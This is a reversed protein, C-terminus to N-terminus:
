TRKIVSDLEEEWLLGARRALHLLSALYSLLVGGLVFLAAPTDGLRTYVIGGLAYSLLTLLGSILLSHTPVARYPPHNNREAEYLRYQAVLYVGLALAWNYGPHSLYGHRALLPLVFMATAFSAGAVLFSALQAAKGPEYSAKALPTTFVLGSLMFMLLFFLLIVAGWHAGKSILSSLSYIILWYGGAYLGFFSFLIIGQFLDAFVRLRVAMDALEAMDRYLRNAGTDKGSM